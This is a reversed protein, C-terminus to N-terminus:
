PIQKKKGGLEQFVISAVILFLGMITSLYIQEGIIFYLALLSLFPTLYIMNSIRATSSSLKLATLWLVFTIGMEFVGIYIIAPWAQVEPLSIAGTILHAIFIYFLGFIFSFALKIVPDHKDKTNILWFSAWIFTSGIALIVGFENVGAFSIFEGKTAILVAGIFSVFIAGFQKFTLRQKLIPIALVSLTIPWGFNLAMALQGSLLDYAKFLVVYYLFPNLFGMIAAKYLLSRDPKLLFMIKGQFVVVAILILASIFASFFLLELPTQYRLAIKFASAAGTWFLISLSTYILARSNKNM